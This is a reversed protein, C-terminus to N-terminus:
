RPKRKPCYPDKCICGNHHDAFERIQEKVEEEREIMREYQERDLFQEIQTAILQDLTQPDLADLEWSERGYQRLYEVIRSDTLKAPNAPPRYQEVQDYNLALRIVDVSVPAMEPTMLELREQVDRTMDIGSPDHDGLYIVVPWQGRNAAALMRKAGDYMATASSYGRNAMFRIHYRATVPEIVSSLADKECWVEVYFNQGEWRNLRFQHAAGTLIERAGSWDAPKVPNRGRDVIANWDVWGGERANTMLSILRKYSKMTNPLLDRSVLQYYLQRLTIAYGLQAYERLVALSDRLLARTADTRPEWDTFAETPM